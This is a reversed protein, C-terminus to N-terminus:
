DTEEVHNPLQDQDSATRPFHQALLAGAREIGHVLGGTFDGRKFHGTLAATLELWFADGCKEHVATDGIVAFTHSQPAVFILVGNRHRTRTMGLREFQIQAAAVPDAAAHRALVVRIEGSTHQEAAAIAAVLRPHDIPPLSSLLNM